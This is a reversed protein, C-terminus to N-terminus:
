PWIRTAEVVAQLAGCSASEDGLWFILPTLLALSSLLEERSQAALTHLGKQWVWLADSRPLEQWCSVLEQGLARGQWGWANNTGTYSWPVGRILADLLWQHRDPMPVYPVRKLLVRAANSGETEPFLARWASEWAPDGGLYPALDSILDLSDATTWMQQALALIERALGLQESASVCPLLVLLARAQTGADAIGRAAHLAQSVQEPTLSGHLVLTQLVQVRSSWDGIRSTLSLLRATMAVRAEPALGPLQAAWFEAQYEPHRFQAVLKEAETLVDGRLFQVIEALVRAQTAEHESELEHLLRRLISAHATAPLYPLVRRCRNAQSDSDLNDLLHDGVLQLQATTLCPALQVRAAQRHHENELNDVFQLIQPLSEEPLEDAVLALAQYFDDSTPSCHVLSDVIVTWINTQIQDPLLPILALLQSIRHVPNDLQATRAIVAKPELPWASQATRVILACLANAQADTDDLSRMISLAQQLQNDSLYPALQEILTFREENSQLEKAIMLVRSLRDATLFPALGALASVRDTEYKLNYAKDLLWAREQPSVCAAMACIEDPRSITPLAEALLQARDSPPALPIILAFALAPLNTVTEDRAKDLARAYVRDWDAGPLLPLLSVLWRVQGPDTGGGLRDVAALALQVLESRQAASVLPLLAMVANIVATPSQLTHITNCAEPLYGLAFRSLLAVIATDRASLGNVLDSALLWAREVCDEPLRLALADLVRAVNQDRYERLRREQEISRDDQKAAPEVVRYRVLIDFVREWLPGGADPPLRLALEAFPRASEAHQESRWRVDLDQQAADLMPVPLYPILNAQAAAAPIPAAMNLAFHWLGPMLRAPVFPAWAKLNEAVFSEDAISDLLGILQTVIDDGLTASVRPLAAVLPRARLALPFTEIEHYLPEIIEVPLKSILAEITEARQAANSSQRIVQLARLPTWVNKEVLAVTLSVPLNAAVNRVSAEFLAYRVQLDIREATEAQRWALQSDSLFGSLTGEQSEKLQAWREGILAHLEQDQGSRAFHTALYALGYADIRSVEWKDWSTASGRYYDTIRRHQEAAPIYYRNPLPRGKGALARRQLFDVLSQHYLMHSSEGADQTDATEQIFQDLIMLSNWVESEPQNTFKTLEQIKLGRQAVSLIGLVATHANPGSSKGMVRDLSDAYLSDLGDPLGALNDLQRQGRAVADLLFTVYQFNGATKDAIGTIQEALHQEGTSTVQTQLGADTQLRETVYARVDDMNRADFEGASLFLPTADRLMQEIDVHKRSTLIFRVQSPLNEGAAILEAINVDGSYALAEDLADVLIVIRVHPEAHCLDELPQRVVRIFADEPAVGSLDLSNIQVGIVQGGAVTNIIQSSAIQITGSSGKEILAQAYAPYRASLQLALSQAFVLPNIWQRDRASCFHFASLFDQGLDPLDVGAPVEGRSYQVLRAAIASKGSGPEGTLLFCRAAAPDALWAAISQFVWTRGTFRRARDSTYRDFDAM